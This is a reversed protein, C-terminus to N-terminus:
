YLVRLNLVYPFTLRPIFVYENFSHKPQPFVIVTLLYLCATTIVLARMSHQM